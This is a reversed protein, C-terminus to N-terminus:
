VFFTSLFFAYMKCVRGDTTNVGGDTTNMGPPPYTPINEQPREIEDVLTVVTDHHDKACREEWISPTCVLIADIRNHYRLCICAKPLSTPLNQQHALFFIVTALSM